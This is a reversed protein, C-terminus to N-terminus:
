LEVWNECGEVRKWDNRVWIPINKVNRFWPSHCGHCSAFSRDMGPWHWSIQHRWLCSCARPDPHMKPNTEVLTKHWKHRIEFVEPHNQKTLIVKPSTIRCSRTTKMTSQPHQEGFQCSNNFLSFTTHALGNVLIPALTCRPFPDQPRARNWLWFGEFRSPQSINYPNTVQVTNTHIIIIHNLKWTPLRKINSRQDDSQIFSLMVNDKTPLLGRLHVELMTTLTEPTHLTGKTNCEHKEFQTPGPPHRHIEQYKKYHPQQFQHHNDVRGTSKQM